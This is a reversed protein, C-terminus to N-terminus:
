ASERAPGDYDHSGRNSTRAGILMVRPPGAKAITADDHM